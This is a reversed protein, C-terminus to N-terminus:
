RKAGQKILEQVRTRVDASDGVAFSNIRLVGIRGPESKGGGCRRSLWQTECSLYAPPAPAFIRLKVESGAAGNLVAQTTCRFTEHLRAISTNLLIAARVGAIDAPSGKMPAIVYLYSAVALNLETGM